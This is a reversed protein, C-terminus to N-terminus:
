PDTSVTPCVLQGEEAKGIELEFCRGDRGESVTAESVAARADPSLSPSSACGGAASVLMFAALSAYPRASFAKGAFQFWEGM